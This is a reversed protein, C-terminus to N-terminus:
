GESRPAPTAVHRPEPAPRVDPPVTPSDTMANAGQMGQDGSRHLIDASLTM